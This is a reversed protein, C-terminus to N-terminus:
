GKGRKWKSVHERKAEELQELDTSTIVDFETNMWRLPFPIIIEWCTTFDPVM